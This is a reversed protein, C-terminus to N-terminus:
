ASAREGGDMDLRNGFPVSVSATGAMVAAGAQTTCTIEFEYRQTDSDYEASSVTANVTVRDEPRVPGVFAVSLAGSAFWHDGFQSIMVDDLLCLLLPGSAIPGGYASRAAFDGGYHIPNRFGVTETFDIMLKQTIARSRAPMSDGVQLEGKDEVAM